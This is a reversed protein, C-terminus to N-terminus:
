RPSDAELLEAVDSRGALRARELPSAGQHDSAAPDAGHDILLRVLEAPGREAALHLLGRQREDKLDAGRELLLRVLPIDRSSVACGMVGTCFLDPAGRGVNPDAGRELLLRVDDQSGWRAAVHLPTPWYRGLEEGLADIDAGRALLLLTVDRHRRQLAVHLPTICAWFRKARPSVLAGADLLRAAADVDGSWAAYFLPTVGDAQSAMAGRPDEALLDAVRQTQGLGAAAFLDLEAGREILQRAADEHCEEIAVHLATRGRSDRAHVDAGRALLLDLLGAGRPSTLALHLPPTGDLPRRAAEPDAALAAAVRERLGVRLLHELTHASGAEILAEVAEAHGHRAASDIPRHRAARQEPTGDTDAGREVLLRILPAHGGWAARTIPTSLGLNAAWGPANVEAGADLLATVIAAHTALLPDGDGPLARHLITETKGPDSAVEARALAPERTLLATVAELNQTDVAQILAALGDKM